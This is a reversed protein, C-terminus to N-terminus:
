GARVLELIPLEPRCLFRVPYGYGIGRSVYLRAGDREHLGEALERHNIPLTIAGILPLKVQGGHTHGALMLDFASPDLECFVDPNHALVILPRHDARRVLTPDYDDSWFEGVGAIQLPTGNVHRTTVQDVLVEIGAAELLRRTQRGVARHDPDDAPFARGYDHNGLCAVVGLPAALEALAGTLEGAWKPHGSISDGTMCVFDPSRANTMAVWDAVEDLSCSQYHIDTLHAIRLGALADPLNAVAVRVHSQEVWWPELFRTYGTAAIGAGLTGLVSRRLFKRRSIRRTAENTRDAM